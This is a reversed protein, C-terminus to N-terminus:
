CSIRRRWRTSSNGRTSISRARRRITSGRSRASRRNCGARPSSIARSSTTSSRARRGRRMRSAAIAPRRSPSRRSPTRRGPLAADHEVVAESLGAVALAAGPRPPRSREDAAADNRPLRQRYQASRGHRTGTQPQKSLFDRVLKESLRAIEAMHQAWLTPDPFKPAGTDSDNMKEDKCGSVAQALM